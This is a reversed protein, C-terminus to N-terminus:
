PFGSNETKVSGVPQKKPGEVGKLLRALAPILVGTGVLCLYVRQFPEVKNLASGALAVALAVGLSSGLQRIANNVASGVGLRDAKLNQVAAGALSPLMLGIAIGSIIQGPLWTGIYNPVPNIRLALWLNSLAFLVGGM